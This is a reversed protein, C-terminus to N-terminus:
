ITELFLASIILSSTEVLVVTAGYSDGTHGGLRRGLSEPIIITPLIGITLAFIISATLKSNILIFGTCLVAFGIVAPVFDKWGKIYGKHFSATGRNRLYKFRSIALLPACRGWFSAIPLAFLSMNNLKILASIQLLAMLLLAQVGSAGVRSDDMAELCRSNGAALGDATDMLGDFHLGGTALISFAIVGLSISTTPWHLSTLLFWIFAQLSGIILGIWPGFRAIRKFSPKLCPFRPFITYFIWAGSLDRLWTKM